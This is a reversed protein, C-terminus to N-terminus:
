VTSSGELIIGTYKVPSSEELLEQRFLQWCRDTKVAVQLYLLM